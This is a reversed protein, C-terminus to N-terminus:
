LKVKSSYGPDSDVSRDNKKVHGMGSRPTVSHSMWVKPKKENEVPIFFAEARRQKDVSIAAPSQEAKTKAAKEKVREVARCIVQNRVLVDDVSFASTNRTFPAKKAVKKRPEIVRVPTKSGNRVNYTGFM